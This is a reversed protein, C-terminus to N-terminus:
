FEDPRHGSKLNTQKDQAVLQEDFFLYNTMETGEVDSYIHGKKTGLNFILDLDYGNDTIYAVCEIPEGDVYVNMNDRSFSICAKKGSTTLRWSATMTPEKGECGVGVKKVVKRKKGIAKKRGALLIVSM